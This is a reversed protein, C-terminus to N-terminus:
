SERGARLEGLHREATKRDPPEPEPRELYVEFFRISDAVNGSARHELATLYIREHLPLLVEIVSEGAGLRQTRLSLLIRRAVGPAGARDYALALLYGAARLQSGQSRARVRHALRIARELDAALLAQVGAVLDLQRLDVQGHRWAMTLARHAAEPAGSAVELQALLLYTMPPPPARRRRSEAIVADLRARVRDHDEKLEDALAAFEELSASYTPMSRPRTLEYYAALVQVAPAHSCADGRGIWTKRIKSSIRASRDRTNKKVPLQMSADREVAQCATWAGAGALSWITPGPPPKPEWDTFTPAAAKKEAKKEAKKATKKEVRTEGRDASPALVLAGILLAQLANALM